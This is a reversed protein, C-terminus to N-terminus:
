RERPGDPRPRDCIEGCGGAGSPECSQGSVVCSYRRRSEVTGLTDRAATETFDVLQVVLVLEDEARALKMRVGVTFAGSSEDDQEVFSGEDLGREAAQEIFAGFNARQRTAASGANWESIKIWRPTQGPRGLMLAAVDALALHACAALLRPWFEKATGPFKRLAAVEETIREFREDTDNLESGM